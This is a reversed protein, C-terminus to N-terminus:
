SRREEIAKAAIEQIRREEVLDVVAAELELAATEAGGARLLYAARNLSAEASRIQRIASRISVARDM